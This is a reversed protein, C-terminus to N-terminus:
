RWRTWDETTILPNKPGILHIRSSALFVRNLDLGIEVSVAGVRDAGLETGAGCRNAPGTRFFNFRM